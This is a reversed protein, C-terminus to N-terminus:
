RQAGAEVLSPQEVQRLGANLGQPAGTAIEEVQLHVGPAEGQAGIVKRVRLEAVQGDDVYLVGLGSDLVAKAINDTDKAGTHWRRPVPARKKWASKPCTFIALIEVRLPGELLPEGAMAEQIHVQATGKWSRSKEPDHVRVMPRGNVMVPVGGKRYVVGARGRGQAVPEGPLFIDLRRSM